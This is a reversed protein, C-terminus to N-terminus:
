VPGEVVEFVGSNWLADLLHAKVVVVFHDAFCYVVYFVELLVSVDGDEWGLGLM